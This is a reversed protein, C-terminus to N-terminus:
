RSSMSDESEFTNEISESLEVDYEETEDEDTDFDKDEEDESSLKLSALDECIGSSAVGVNLVKLIGILSAIPTLTKPVSMFLKM